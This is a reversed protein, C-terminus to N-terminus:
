NLELLVESELHLDQVILVNSASEAGRVVLRSGTHLGEDARHRHAQVLAPVLDLEVQGVESTARVAGVVDLSEANLNV